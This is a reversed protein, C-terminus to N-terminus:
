EAGVIEVGPTSAYEAWSGDYLRVEAAGCVELGLALVAATVGSGCTTTIPRELDLGEGSVGGADGGGWTDAWGGGAGYVSCEEGGAHAGLAIGARPEPATGAFRGASRADAIQAGEALMRRVEGLSVVAREDLVAEFRGRERRVEGAATRLGAEVWARLGGDLVRVDRAGFTRLMWWARAASFVGAQEYVVITGSSGVGLAAMSEAFSGASPLMHPLTTGHDSLAEVDFFVAGPVHAELYRAWVDVVPTVGVPAMTADVVVVDPDDMRSLLWSTSVLPNMSCLM